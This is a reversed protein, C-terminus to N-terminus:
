RDSNRRGELTCRGRRVNRQEIHDAVSVVECHAAGPWVSCGNVLDTGLVRRIGVNSELRKVFCVRPQAKTATLPAAATCCATFHWAIGPAGLLARASGTTERLLRRTLRTKYSFLRALAHLRLVSQEAGRAIGTRMSGCCLLGSYAWHREAGQASIWASWWAAYLMADRRGAGDAAWSEIHPHQRVCEYVKLACGRDVSASLSSSRRLTM